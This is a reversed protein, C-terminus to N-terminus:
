RVGITVHPWMLDYVTASKLDPSKGGRHNTTDLGNSELPLLKIPQSHHNINLSM